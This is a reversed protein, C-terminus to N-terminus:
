SRVKSKGKPSAHSCSWGSAADLGWARRLAAAFGGPGEGRLIEVVEVVELANGIMNGLPQDMDTILAVMKKGMREGTEVM